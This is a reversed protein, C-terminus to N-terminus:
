GRGHVSGEVGKVGDVGRGVRVVRGACFAKLRTEDKRAAIQGMLAGKAGGIGELARMSEEADGVGIKVLPMLFAPSPISQTFHLPSSCLQQIRDSTCYIPLAFVARFFRGVSLGVSWGICRSAIFGAVLLYGSTIYQVLFCHGGICHM